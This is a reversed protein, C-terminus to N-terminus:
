GAGRGAGGRQPGILRWGREAALAAAFEQAAAFTPFSRIAPVDDPCPRVSVVPLAGVREVRVTPTPIAVQPM